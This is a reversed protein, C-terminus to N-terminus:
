INYIGVELLQLEVDLIQQETGKRFYGELLRSVDVYDHDTKGALFICGVSHM